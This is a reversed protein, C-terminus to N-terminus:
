RAAAEKLNPIKWKGMVAEYQRYLEALADVAAPSQGSLEEDALVVLDRLSLCVGEDLLVTGDRLKM